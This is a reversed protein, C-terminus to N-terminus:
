LQEGTAKAIAARAQAGYEVALEKMLELMLKRDQDIAARGMQVAKAEYWQLADLLEAEASKARVAAVCQEAYTIAHLDMALADYLEFGIPHHFVAKKKKPLPGFVDKDYTM